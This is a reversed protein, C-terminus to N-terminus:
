PRRQIRGELSGGPEVVIDRYTLEGKIAGTRTLIVRGAVHVRGSLSGSVRLETAVSLQGRVSGSPLIEVIDAAVDGEFGGAIVVYDAGTVTASVQVDDGVFLDSKEKEADILAPTDTRTTMIVPKAPAGDDEPTSREAAVASRDSLMPRARIQDRVGTITDEARKVVPNKNERSSSFLGM